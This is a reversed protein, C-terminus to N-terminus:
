LAVLLLWFLWSPNKASLLKQDIPLSRPSVISHIGRPAECLNLWIHRMFASPNIRFADGVSNAEGFDRRTVTQWRLWPNLDLRERRTINYAYHQGFAIFSRTGALPNGLCGILGASVAVLSFAAKLISARDRNRVIMWAAVASGALCLLIFAVFYEPRLY